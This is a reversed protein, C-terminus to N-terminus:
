MVSKLTKYFYKGSSLFVEIKFPGGKYANKVTDCDEPCDKCFSVSTANKWVTDFCQAGVADCM